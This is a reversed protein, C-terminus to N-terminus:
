AQAGTDRSALASRANNHWKSKNPDALVAILDKSSMLNASVGNERTGIKKKTAIKFKIVRGDIKKTQISKPM